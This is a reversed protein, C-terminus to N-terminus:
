INLLVLIVMKLLMIFLLIFMCLFKFYSNFTNVSRDDNALLYVVSSLNGKIAAKYIDSEFDPPQTSKWKGIREYDEEAKNKREQEEQLKKEEEIKKKEHEERLIKEKQIREEKLWRIDKIGHLHLNM